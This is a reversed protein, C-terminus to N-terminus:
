VIKQPLLLSIALIQLCYILKLGSVNETSLIFLVASIFFILTINCNTHTKTQYVIELGYIVIQLGVNNFM